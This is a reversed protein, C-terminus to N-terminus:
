RHTRVSAMLWFEPMNLVWPMSPIRDIYACESMDPCM